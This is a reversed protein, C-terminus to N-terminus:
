TCVLRRRQWYTEMAEAFTVHETREQATVVAFGKACAQVGPREWDGSWRHGLNRRRQETQKM